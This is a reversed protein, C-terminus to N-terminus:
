YLSARILYGFYAIKGRVSIPHNPDGTFGYSSPQGSADHRLRAMVDAPALGGCGGNSNSIALCAAASGTVHPTAMSTGSAIAFSNNLYTSTICVGPAAITHGVDASSVAYNSFAASTDDTDRYCTAAAGGGPAGNYDAIASVTLVQDYTAPVSNAFNTGDNGAAVVFLVGADTANCISKQLAQKTTACPGGDLGSGGLSMNAVAIGKAAANAAVWDIGCIVNSWSGSGTSDLVRVSYIPAGPVVGVVGSGNSLAAITGAVHTGHGNADDFSSGTQCNVGGVVNLDAHPGSGTDIVAIAPGSYPATFSKRQDAGIRMIGTPVSDARLAAVPLDESIFAVRPDSELQRLQGPAIHASYGKLAFGYVHDVGVGYARGHEAAVAPVNPTDDNLVVIYSGPPGAQAPPGGQALLAGSWHTAALTVAGAVIFSITLKAKV